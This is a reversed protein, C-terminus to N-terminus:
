LISGVMAMLMGLVLGAASIIMLSLAWRPAEEAGATYLSEDHAPPYDYPAEEEVPQYPADAEHYPADAEHYSADEPAPDYYPADAEYYPADEPAPDHPPAAGGPNDGLAMAGRVRTRADRGSPSTVVVLALAVVGLVVSAIMIAIGVSLM